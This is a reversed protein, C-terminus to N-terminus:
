NNDKIAVTGLAKYTNADVVEMTPLSEPTPVEYCVASTILDAPEPLQVTEVNDAILNPAAEPKTM